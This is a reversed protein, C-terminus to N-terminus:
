INSERRNRYLIYTVVAQGVAIPLGMMWPSLDGHQASLVLVTAGCLFYWGAALIMGNPLSQYSTFGLLGILIQWLGPLVWAADPSFKCIVITIIVGAAGFPLICGLAMNLMIEAMQGHVQRARSLVAKTTIIVTAVILGGWVAVYYLQEHVSMAVPWITQSVAMALALVGALFSEGPALCQFRAGAILHTRIDAIQSLAYQVNSM